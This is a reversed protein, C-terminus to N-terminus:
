NQKRHQQPNNFRRNNSIIQNITNRLEDIWKNYQSRDNEYMYELLEKFYKIGNVAHEYFLHCENSIDIKSSLGLIYDDATFKQMENYNNNHKLCDYYSTFLIKITETTFLLYCRILCEVTKIDLVDKAINQDAKDIPTKNKIFSYQLQSGL